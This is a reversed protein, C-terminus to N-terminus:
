PVSARPCTCSSGSRARAAPPVVHELHDGLWLQPECVTVLGSFTRYCRTRLPTAFRAGGDARHGSRRISSRHLRYDAPRGGPPRCTQTPEIRVCDSGPRKDAGDDEVERHVSAAIVQDDAALDGDDDPPDHEHARGPSQQRGPPPGTDGPDGHREEAGEHRPGRQSGSPRQARLAAQLLQRPDREVEAQQQERERDVPVAFSRHPVRDVGDRDGDCDDGAQGERRSQARVQERGGGLRGREKGAGGTPQAPRQVVPVRQRRQERQAQRQQERGGRRRPREPSLRGRRRRDRDHRQAAVEREGPAARYRGADAQEREEGEAGLAHALQGSRMTVAIPLPTRIRAVTSRGAISCPSLLAAARWSPFM